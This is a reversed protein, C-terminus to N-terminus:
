LCKKFVFTQRLPLFFINQVTKEEHYNSFLGMSLEKLYKKKKDRFLKKTVQIDELETFSGVNHMM